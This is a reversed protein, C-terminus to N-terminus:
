KEELFLSDRWIGSNQRCLLILGKLVGSIPMLPGSSIFFARKGVFSDARQTIYEINVTRGTLSVLFCLKIAVQCEHGCACMCAPVFSESYNLAVWVKNEEGLTKEAERM